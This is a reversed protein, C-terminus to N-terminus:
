TGSIPLLELFQANAEDSAPHERHPSDATADCNTKLVYESGGSPRTAILIGTAPSMSNAMKLDARGLARSPANRAKETAPRHSTWYVYRRVM